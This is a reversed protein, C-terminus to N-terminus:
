FPCLGHSLANCSSSSNRYCAICNNRCYLGFCQGDIQGTANASKLCCPPLENVLPIVLCNHFCNYVGPISTAILVSKWAIGSLSQRSFVCIM